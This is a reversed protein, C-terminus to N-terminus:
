KEIDIELICKFPICKIYIYITIPYYIIKSLPKSKTLPECGSRNGYTRKRLTRLTFNTCFNTCCFFVIKCLQKNFIYYILTNTYIYICYTYM